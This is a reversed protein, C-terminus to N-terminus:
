KSSTSSTTSPSYFQGMEKIFKQESLLYAAVLDAQDAAANTGLSRLREIEDAYAKQKDRSKSQMEYYFYKSKWEFFLIAFELVRKILSIM